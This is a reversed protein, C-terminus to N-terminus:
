NYIKYDFEHVQNALRMGARLCSMETPKQASLGKILPNKVATALENFTGRCVSVDASIGQLAVKFADM